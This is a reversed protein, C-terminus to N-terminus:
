RLILDDGYETSYTIRYDLIPSGGDQAGDAWVLATQYMNSNAVDEAFNTPADPQSLFFGGSGLAVPSYGM